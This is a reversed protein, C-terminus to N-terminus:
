RFTHRVGDLFSARIYDSLVVTLLIGSIAGWLHASHNINDYRNRDSFYSYALFLLAYLFAPIGIPFFFLYMKAMPDFLIYSFLIAAIGGSAGLSAYRSDHYHELVTPVDSLVISALYVIAFPVPGLMRELQFGFFFFTLMNFALHMIDNHVFGSMLITYWRRDYVFEYPRLMWATVIRDDRLLGYLSVAITFFFLVTAVPAAQFM